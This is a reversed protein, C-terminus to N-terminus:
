EDPISLSAFRTLAAAADRKIAEVSTGHPSSCAVVLHWRDPSPVLELLAVLQPGARPQTHGGPNCFMATLRDGAFWLMWPNMTERVGAREYGRRALWPIWAALDGVDLSLRQLSPTANLFPQMEPLTAYCWSIALERLAPLVLTALHESDKTQYVFKVHIKELKPHSCLQGVNGETVLVRLAPMAGLLERVHEWPGLEIAEVTAWEAQACIALAGSLRRENVTRCKALFGREFVVGDKPIAPAIAGLWQRGHEKLLAAERRTRKGDRGRALQLAIFEGRPDGQEQLLDALVARPGDDDPHAYVAAFLEAPDRKAGGARALVGEIVDLMYLQEPSLTAERGSLSSRTSPLMRRLEYAATGGGEANISAVHQLAALSRPDGIAVVMRLAQRVAEMGTSGPIPPHELLGHLATAIRPDARGELATLRAELEAKKKIQALTALLHELDAPDRKAALELWAAQKEPLKKGGPSQRTKAVRRSLEEIVATIREHKCLEWSELVERLALAHDGADLATAGRPLSM